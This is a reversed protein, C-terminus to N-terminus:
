VVRLMGEVGVEFLHSLQRLRHWAQQGTAGGVAARTSVRQGSMTCPAAATKLSLRPLSNHHRAVSTSRNYKQANRRQERANIQTASNRGNRAREWDGVCVQDHQQVRQATDALSGFSGGTWHSALQLLTDTPRM